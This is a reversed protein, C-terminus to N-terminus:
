QVDSSPCVPQYTPNDVPIDIISGQEARMADIAKNLDVQLSRVEIISTSQGRILRGKDGAIAAITMDEMPRKSEGDLLRNLHKSEVIDYVLAKQDAFDSLTEVNMDALRKCVAQQSIGLLTGIEAQTLKKAKLALIKEIPVNKPTSDIAPLNDTM